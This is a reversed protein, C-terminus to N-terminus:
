AKFMRRLATEVSEPEFEFKGNDLPGPFRAGGTALFEKFSWMLEPKLNWDKWAKMGKETADEPDLYEVKYNVDQVAELTEIFDQFTTQEGAVRFERRQSTTPLLLSAVM